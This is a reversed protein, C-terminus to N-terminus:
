HSKTSHKGCSQLHRHWNGNNDATHLVSIRRQPGHWGQVEHLGNAACEKCTNTSENLQYSWKGAKKVRAVVQDKLSLDAIHSKITNNLLSVSQLKLAVNDGCIIRAKDIAAPKIHKKGITHPKMKRLICLRSQIIGAHSAQISFASSENNLLISKIATGSRPASFLYVRKWMNHTGRRWIDRWNTKRWLNTQCCQM